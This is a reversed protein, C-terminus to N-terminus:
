PKMGQLTVAILRRMAAASRVTNAATLAFLCYYALEDPNVDARVAGAEAAEAIVDRLLHHLQQQSEAVRENTQMLTAVEAGYMHSRQNEARRKHIQAYAEMVAHLRKSPDKTNERVSTLHELHRQIQREHWTALISQVDPFYKYLTARGIGAREAIESMTTSAPGHKLALEWASDM